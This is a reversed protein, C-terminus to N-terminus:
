LIWSSFLSILMCLQSRLWSCWQTSFRWKFTIMYLWSMTTLPAQRTRFGPRGRTARLPQGAADGQGTSPSPVQLMKTHHNIYSPASPLLLASSPVLTSLWGSAPLQARHHQPFFHWGRTCHLLSAQTICPDSSCSKQSANFIHETVRTFNDKDKATEKIFYQLAAHKRAKCPLDWHQWGAKVTGLLEHGHRQVETNDKNESEIQPRVIYQNSRYIKYITKWSTEGASGKKKKCNGLRQMLTNYICWNVLLILM